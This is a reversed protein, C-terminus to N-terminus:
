TAARCAAASPATASDAAATGAARPRRCRSRASPARGCRPRPARPRRSRRRCGRGPAALRAGAFQDLRALDRLAHQRVRRRLVIRRRRRSPAFSRSAFVPAPPALRDRDAPRAGARSPRRQQAVDLHQRGAGVRAREGIASTRGASSRSVGAYRPSRPVRANAATSRASTASSRFAPTLITASQSTSCSHAGRRPQREDGHLQRRDAADCVNRSPSRAAAVGRRPGAIADDHLGLAARRDARDHARM